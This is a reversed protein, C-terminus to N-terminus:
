PCPPGGTTPATARAARRALAAHLIGATVRLRDDRLTIAIDDHPVARCSLCTGAEAEDAPLVSAAVAVPYSVRGSRLDVKCIGCGGRRCGVRYGYGSRTLAALITEGALCTVRVGDPQVEIDPM